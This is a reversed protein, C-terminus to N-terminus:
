LIVHGILFLVIGSVGMLLLFSINDSTLKGGHEIELLKANTMEHMNNNYDNRINSQGVQTLLGICAMVVGVVRLIAGFQYDSMVYVLLSILAGISVVIAVKLTSKWVRNVMKGLWVKMKSMVAEGTKM